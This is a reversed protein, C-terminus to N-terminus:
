KRRKPKGAPKDAPKGARKGAGKAPGRSPGKGRSKAKRGPAGGNSEANPEVAAGGRSVPKRAGLRFDLERRELDVRAVAVELVDGLRYQNGSRHGSLTHARRDFHYFDDTLSEVHVLGEAPLEVGQVFLGFSEVGTVVATMKEGIRTSLYSLL